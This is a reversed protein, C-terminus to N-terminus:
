IRDMAGRLGTSGLCFHQTHLSFTSTLSSLPWITQVNVHPCHFSIIYFPLLGPGLSELTLLPCYNSLQFINATPYPLVFLPSGTPILMFSDPATYLSPPIITLFYCNPALFISVKVEVGSPSLKLLSCLSATVEPSFFIKILALIYFYHM